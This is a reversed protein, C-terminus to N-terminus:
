PDQAAWIQAWCFATSRHLCAEIHDGRELLHGGRPPLNFRPLLTACTPVGVMFGLIQTQVPPGMGLDSCSSSLGAVM